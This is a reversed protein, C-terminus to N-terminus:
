PKRVTEPEPVSAQNKIQCVVATGHGARRRVELTADIVGARYQMIRLGMGGGNRSPSGSVIGVGDDQVTVRITGNSLEPLVLIQRPQAHKVANNIAEQVIRFLHTAVVNDDISVRDDGEVRCDIGCRTTTEAALKELAAMFGAADVEVPVLGQVATRVERLARQVGDAITQAIGTQPSNEASLKQTLGKALYSLGTLEQGLSDHLERGIRQQESGTVELVERELNKRATIDRAIISVGVCQGDTNELPSVSQSVHIPRGDKRSRITEWAREPPSEGQQIQRIIRQEEEESQSPILSRSDRNVAESETFGFVHEAGRNWSTIRGDFTQSFIADDSNQVIAALRARAEETRAQERRALYYTHYMVFLSLLMALICALVLSGTSSFQISTGFLGFRLESEYVGQKSRYVGVLWDRNVPPARNPESLGLFSGLMEQGNEPRFEGNFRLTTGLVEEAHVPSRRMSSPGMRERVAVITRQVDADSTDGLLHGVNLIVTGDNNDVIVFHEDPQVKWHGAQLWLQLVAKRVQDWNDKRGLDIATALMRVETQTTQLYRQKAEERSQLFSSIVVGLTLAFAGVGILFAVLPLSRRKRLSRTSLVLSPGHSGRLPPSSAPLNKGNGHTAAGNESSM